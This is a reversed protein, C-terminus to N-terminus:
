DEILDFVRGTILSLYFRFIGSGVRFCRNRIASPMPSFIISFLVRLDLGMWRHVDQAGRQQSAYQLPM